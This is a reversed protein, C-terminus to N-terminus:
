GTEKFLLLAEGELDIGQEMNTHDPNKSSSLMTM